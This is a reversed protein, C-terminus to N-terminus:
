AGVRSMGVGEVCRIGDEDRGVRATAGMEGVRMTRAVKSASKLASSLTRCIAESAAAEVNREKSSAVMVENETSRSADGVMSRSASVVTSRNVGEVTSKSADGVTSRSASVVMNKNVDEMSRSADEGMNGRSGVTSKIAAVMSRDGSGEAKRVSAMARSVVVGMSRESSGATDRTEANTNRERLSEDSRMSSKKRRTTVEMSRRRTISVMSRIAKTRPVVRRRGIFKLRTIIDGM